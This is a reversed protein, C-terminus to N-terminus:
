PDVAAEMGGVMTRQSAALMMARIRARQEASHVPALMADVFDAARQQWDPGRLPALFQEWQAPETFFSQLTGDVLVLGATRQPYRRYFQRIAPTGNSHGVLVARQVGADDLVAAIARAFLDMSYAARPEASDGHGPLDIAILRRGRALLPDALQAAFVTRNCCWGHVFVLTTPGQGQDSYAVDGGDLPARHVAVSAKTGATSCGSVLVALLLATATWPGTVRGHM